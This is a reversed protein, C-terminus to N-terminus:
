EDDDDDVDDYFMTMMTITSMKTKLMMLAGCRGDYEDHHGDDDDVNPGVCSGDDDDVSNDGDEDVGIMTMPCTTTARM